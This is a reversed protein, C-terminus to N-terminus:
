DSGARRFELSAGGLGCPKTHYHVGCRCEWSAWGDPGPAGMVWAVPEGGCDPCKPLIVIPGFPRLLRVLIRKLRVLVM